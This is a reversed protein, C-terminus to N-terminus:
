ARIPVVVAKAEGAMARWIAQSVKEAAASIATDIKHIYGATVGRGAHGLLAGITPVTFDLDEATSAFAHRLGHPTLGELMPGTVIRGWANPLGAYHGTGRVAPFVFNGKRGELLKRAPSGIPRISAGTKSDNLRLCGGPLDIEKARLKEIEGRRCGTLALLRIATVAQWPEGRAEAQVLALGLARYQEATMRFSRKSGAPRTVRRAPNDSRIGQDIASELIAGLLGLTRTATGPGGTVIARGRKKDTKVNAATKGAIVDDRFQVIDAERLDKVARTGLLPKIHREIRGADTDVTSQRKISGRRTILRGARAKALYTDCFTAVTVAALDDSRQEAPDHGDEAAALLQRARKRAEDPTKTGYRGITFRRSRGHKNRYQILFSKAGSPKVRLGFGPLKDDWLFVDGSERAGTRDILDKTLNPMPYAGPLCIPGFDCWIVSRPAFGFHVIQGKFGILYLKGVFNRM